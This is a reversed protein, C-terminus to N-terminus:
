APVMRLALLIFEGDRREQEIKPLLERRHREINPADIMELYALMDETPTVQRSCADVEAPDGELVEPSVEVHESPEAPLQRVVPPASAAARSWRTTRREILVLLHAELNVVIERTREHLGPVDPDDKTRREGSVSRKREGLKYETARSLGHWLCYQRLTIDGTTDPAPALITHPNGSEDRFAAFLYPQSVWELQDRDAVTIWIVARSDLFRREDRNSALPETFLPLASYPRRAIRNRRYRQVSRHCPDKLAALMDSFDLILTEVLLEDGISVGPRVLRQRSALRELLMLGATGVAYALLSQYTASLIEVLRARNALVEKSRACETFRAVVPQLQELLFTADSIPDGTRRVAIRWGTGSIAAEYHPALLGVDSHPLSLITEATETM